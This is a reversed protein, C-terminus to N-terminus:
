GALSCVASGIEHDRPCPSNFLADQQAPMVYPHHDMDM